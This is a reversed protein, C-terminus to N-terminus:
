TLIVSFLKTMPTPVLFKHAGHALHGQYVVSSFFPISIDQLPLSLHNHNISLLPELGLLAVCLFCSVGRGPGAWWCSMEVQDQGGAWGGEGERVRIWRGRMGGAKGLGQVLGGRGAKGPCQLHLFHGRNRLLGM